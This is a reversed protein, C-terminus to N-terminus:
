YVIRTKGACCSPAVGKAVSMEPVEALVRVQVTFRAAPVGTVKATDSECPVVMPEAGTVIWAPVEVEHTPPVAEVAAEVPDAPAVEAEEDATEVPAVVSEEM